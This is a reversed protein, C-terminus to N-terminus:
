QVYSWASSEHQRCRCLIVLGRTPPLHAALASRAFPAVPLSESAVETKAASYKQRSGTTPGRGPRVCDDWDVRYVRSSNVRLASLVLFASSRNVIWRSHIMILYIYYVNWDIRIFCILFIMRTFVICSSTYLEGCSRYTISVAIQRNLPTEFADNNASM